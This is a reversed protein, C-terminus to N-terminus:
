LLLMVFCCTNFMLFASSCLLIDCLLESTCLAVCYVFKGEKLCRLALVKEAEPPKAGRVGQGIASGM